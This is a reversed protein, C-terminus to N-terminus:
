KRPSTTIESNLLCLGALTGSNSISGQSNTSHFSELGSASIWTQKYTPTSTDDTTVSMIEGDLSSLWCSLVPTQLGEKRPGEFFIAVVSFELIWLM